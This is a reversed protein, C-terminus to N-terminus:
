KEIIYTIIVLILTIIGLILPIYGLYNHDDKMLKIITPNDKNYYINFTDYKRHPLIKSNKKIINRYERYNIIYKIQLVCNYTYDSITNDISCDAELVSAKTKKFNNFQSLIFLGVAILSIAFVIGLFLMFHKLM